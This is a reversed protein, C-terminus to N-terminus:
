IVFDAGSVLAPIKLGNLFFKFKLNCLSFYYHM